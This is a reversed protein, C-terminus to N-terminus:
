KPSIDRFSVYLQVHKVLGVDAITVDSLFKAADYDVIEMKKIQIYVLTKLIHINRMKVTM